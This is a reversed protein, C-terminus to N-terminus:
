KAVKVYGNAMLAKASAVGSRASAKAASSKTRARTQNRFKLADEGSLQLGGFANSIVAM